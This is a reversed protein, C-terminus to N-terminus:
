CNVAFWSQFCGYEYLVFLPSTLCAVLVLSLPWIGYMQRLRAHLSRVANNTVQIKQLASTVCCLHLEPLTLGVALAFGGTDQGCGTKRDIRCFQWDHAAGSPNIQTAAM